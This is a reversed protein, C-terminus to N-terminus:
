ITKAPDEELGLSPVRLQRLEKAVVQRLGYSPQTPEPSGLPKPNLSKLSELPKAVGGFALGRWVRFGRM